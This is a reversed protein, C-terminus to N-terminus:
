KRPWPQSSQVEAGVMPKEIIKLVLRGLLGSLHVRISPGEPGYWDFDGINIAKFEIAKFRNDTPM